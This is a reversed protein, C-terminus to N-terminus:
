WPLDNRLRNLWRNITLQYNGPDYTAQAQDVTTTLPERIEDAWEPLAFIQKYYGDRMQITAVHEYGRTARPVDLGYADAPINPDYSRVVIM